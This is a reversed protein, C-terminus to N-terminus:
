GSSVLLVKGNDTGSVSPLETKEAAAAWEGSVVKLIKGNQTTTVAPLDPAQAAALIKDVVDQPLTDLRVMVTDAAM